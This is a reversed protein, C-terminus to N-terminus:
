ENPPLWEGFLMVFCHGDQAPDQARRTDGKRQDLAGLNTNVLVLRLECVFVFHTYQGTYNM